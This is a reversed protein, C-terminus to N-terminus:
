IYIAMQAKLRNIETISKSAKLMDDAYLVLIILMGNSLKKFYVCHEYESRIYNQSLTFSDFKKYSQRPSQKLGYLSKKLRCVFKKNHDQVFGEPQEM